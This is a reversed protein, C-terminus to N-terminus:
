KDEEDNPHDSKNNDSKKYILDNLIKNQLMFKCGYPLYRSNGIDSVLSYTIEENRLLIDLYEYNSSTLGIDSWEVIYPKGNGLNNIIDTKLKSAYKKHWEAYDNTLKNYEKSKKLMKTIQDAMSM